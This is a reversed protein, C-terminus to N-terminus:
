GFRRVHAARVRETDHPMLQSPEAGEVILQAQQRLTETWDHIGDRELLDIVMSISELLYISVRPQETAFQRLEDYALAIMEVHRNEGEDILRRGEDDELSRQPADRRLVEALVATIHFIADQATTPDNIGPSLAKIGVDALQRLGYSVDQSMTRTRGIAIAGRVSESTAKRDGDGQPAPWITCLPAGSVAYHGVAVHVEITGGPEVVKLLEAHDVHQIWGNESNVVCFGDTDPIQTAPGSQGTGDREPWVRRVQGLTDDTIRQLIQSVDMTHASHDIFAVIALVAILGLLVALAASINPIVPDGGDSVSDRVSRLVVLCYTFTGVVVGMVRKNFPDRFLGHVVRPSYQSSALQIILLSVSFAIGAVTITAGAITSLVARTSDVTSTLVLPIRVAAENIETDVMVSLQALLAGALLFLMPEFSWSSRIREGLAAPGSM